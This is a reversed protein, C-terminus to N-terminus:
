PAVGKESRSQLGSLILASVAAPLEEPTLEAAAAPLYQLSEMIGILM